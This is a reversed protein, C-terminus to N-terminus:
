VKYTKLKKFNEPKAQLLYLDQGSSDKAWELSMPSNYYNELIIGWNAITLIEEDNLIFKSRLESNTEKEILGPTEGSDNYVMMRSKTGLKKQIISNVGTNLNPKYVIFEDQILLQETNKFGIGLIGSIHIVDVFGSQPDSTYAYGSCAQDARIMKQVGVSIVRDRRDTDDILAQESYLSAFCKKVSSFLEKEGIVNLFTDHRDKTRISLSNYEVPSSRVALGSDSDKMLEQYALLIRDYLDGPIRAGLILDRAQKATKYISAPDSKDIGSILQDHVGDLKNYEIFHRYASATIVFGDPVRIKGLANQTFIEGLFANKAGVEESDAITITKLRLIYDKM